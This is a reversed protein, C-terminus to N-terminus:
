RRANQKEFTIKFENYFIMKIFYDEHGHLLYLFTEKSIYNWAIADLLSFIYADTERDWYDEPDSDINLM